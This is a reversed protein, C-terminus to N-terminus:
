AEPIDLGLAEAFQEIAEQNDGGTYFASSLARQQDDYEYYEEGDGDENLALPNAPLLLKVAVSEWDSVVGLEGALRYLTAHTTEGEERNLLVTWGALCAITGCLDTAPSGSVWFSNDHQEPHEVVVHQLVKCGLEKGTIM